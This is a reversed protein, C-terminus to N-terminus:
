SAQIEDSDGCQALISSVEEKSLTEIGLNKAESITGELLRSFEKSDMDRTRKYFLFCNCEKGGVYVTKYNRTYPYFADLSMGAPITAGILNGDDDKALTGYSCVLNKKVEDDSSKVATAIKNVLVHFYANADLSRKKRFKGIKISLSEAAKLEEYHNFLAEPNDDVELTVLPKGTAYSISINTFRGTLDM